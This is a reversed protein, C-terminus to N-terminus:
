ATETNTQTHGQCPLPRPGPLHRTRRRPIMLLSAPLLSRTTGRVQSSRKRERWCSRPRGALNRPGPAPRPLSLVAATNDLGNRPRQPTHQRSTTNLPLSPLCCSIGFSADNRGRAESTAQIADRPPLAGTSSQAPQPPPATLCAPSKANLSCGRQKPHGYEPLELLHSSTQGQSGPPSRLFAASRSPNIRSTVAVRQCPM